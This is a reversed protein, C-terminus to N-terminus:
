EADPAPPAPIDSGSSEEEVSPIDSDQEQAAGDMQQQMAPLPIDASDPGQKSLIALYFSTAFFIAAFIGTLRSFFNGSGASGFITQSAGAGFSAGMEAGKGQQLLILGIIALAVILHIVLILNEM